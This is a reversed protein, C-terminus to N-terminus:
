GPLAGERVPGSVQVCCNAIVIVCLLDMLNMLVSQVMEVVKFTLNCYGNQLLVFMYM